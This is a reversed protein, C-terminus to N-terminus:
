ELSRRAPSAFVAGVFPAGWWWLWLWWPADGPVCALFTLVGQAIWVPGVVLVAVLGTAFIGEWKMAPDDGSAPAFRVCLLLVIAGV